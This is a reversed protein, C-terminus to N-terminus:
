GFVSELGRVAERLDEDYTHVYLDMTTSLKAHRLIAQVVKPKVGRQVLLSGCGHRLDHFRVGQSGDAQRRTPLGATAALPYFVRRLM